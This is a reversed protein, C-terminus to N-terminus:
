RPRRVKTPRRDLAAPLAPTARDAALARWRGRIFSGLLYPAAVIAAALAVVLLELVILVLVLGILVFGPVLLVVVTVPAIFAALWEVSYSVPHDGPASREDHM